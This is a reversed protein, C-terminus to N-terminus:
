RGILSEFHCEYDIGVKEINKFRSDQEAIRIGRKLLGGSIWGYFIWRQYKLGSKNRGTLRRLKV